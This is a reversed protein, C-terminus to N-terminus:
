HIREEDGPYPINIGILYQPIGAIMWQGSRFIKRVYVEFFYVIRNAFYEFFRDFRSACTYFIVAFYGSFHPLILIVGLGIMLVSLLTRFFVPSYDLANFCATTRRMKTRLVLFQFSSLTM